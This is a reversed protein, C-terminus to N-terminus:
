RFPLYSECSSGRTVNKVAEPWVSFYFRFKQSSSEDMTKSTRQKETVVLSHRWWTTLWRIITWVNWQLLQTWGNQSGRTVKIDGNVEAAGDHVHKVHKVNSSWWPHQLHQRYKIHQLNTQRGKTKWASPRATRQNCPTTAARLTWIWSKGNKWPSASQAEEQDNTKLSTFFKYRCSKCIINLLSLFLCMCTCVCVVLARTSTQIMPCACWCWESRRIYDQRWSDRKKNAFHWVLEALSPSVEQCSLLSLPFSFNCFWRKPFQGSLSSANCFM